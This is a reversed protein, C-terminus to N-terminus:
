DGANVGLLARTEGLERVLGSTQFQAAAKEFHERAGASDSRALLMKGWAVRTRAAELRADGADLLQVSSAFHTEAIDWQSPNRELLASAWVRHALAEAFTGDVSQAIEVAAGAQTVAEAFRRANFAMESKIAARWDDLLYRGGFANSIKEAENMSQQAADHQGLRSEAWARTAFASYTPLVSGSAVSLQVADRSVRLMQQIDGGMLHVMALLAYTLGEGSLPHFENGRALAHEEEVLGRRYEGRAALAVGLLAKTLIWETWNKKQAFPELAQELLSQAQDFKGSWLFARAMLTLALAGLEQDDLQQAVPLVQQANELAGRREVGYLYMRGIWLQVRALRLRDMPLPEDARVLSAALSEAARLSALNQLPNASTFSVANRKVLTDIRVRLHSADDPLHSLAELAQAYHANAEPFASLAAANDGARIAYEVLRTDNGAEAFHHALLSAFEDLREAYFAEYAEAVQEHLERRTKLLLSQYASDQTLAHKFLYQSEEDPLRRVLQAQELQTLMGQLNQSPYANLGEM